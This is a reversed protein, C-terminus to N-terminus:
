FRYRFGVYPRLVNVNFDLSGNGIAKSMGNPGYLKILENVEPGIQGSQLRKILDINKSLNNFHGKMANYGNFPEDYDISGGIEPLQFANM